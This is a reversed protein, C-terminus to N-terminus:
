PLSRADESPKGRAIRQHLHSALVGVIMLNILLIGLKIANAKESLEYIEFPLYIGGSLAGFWEAWRRERWLGYAETFRVATYAIAMFFLLWLRSDTLGEAFELFLAPYTGEPNLGLERVWAAALCEVDRHVLTLVGFGALFTLLGKSAEFLAIARLSRSSNPSTMRNM